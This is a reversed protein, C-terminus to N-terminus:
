TSSRADVWWPAIDAAYRYSYEAVLGTAGPPADQEETPPLPSAGGVPDLWELRLSDISRHLEPVASEHHDSTQHEIFARHDDFSLLCYYLSPDSSRWYEYRLVGTEETHTRDYLSRAIREFEAEHGPTVRIHALLTAM